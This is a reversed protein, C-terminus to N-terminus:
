KFVIRKQMKTMKESFDKIRPKPFKVRTAINNTLYIEGQYPNTIIDKDYEKNNILNYALKWKKNNVLSMFKSLHLIEDIDDDCFECADLYDITALCYYKYFDVINNTKFVLIEENSDDNIYYTM